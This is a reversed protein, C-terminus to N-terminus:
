DGLDQTGDIDEKVVHGTAEARIITRWGRQALVHRLQTLGSARIRTPSTCDREPLIFTHHPLQALFCISKLGQSLWRSPLLIRM